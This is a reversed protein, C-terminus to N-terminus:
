CPLDRAALAAEAERTKMGPQRSSGPGIKESCPGGFSEEVGLVFFTRLLLVERWCLTRTKERVYLAVGREM